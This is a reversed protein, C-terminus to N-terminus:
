TTMSHQHPFPAFNSLPFSTPQHPQARNPNSTFPSSLNHATSHPAAASPIVHSCSVHDSSHQEAAYPVSPSSSAAPDHLHQAAATSATMHASAGTDPFWSADQSDALNM